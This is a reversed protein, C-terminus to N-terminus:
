GITIRNCDVFVCNYNIFCNNGIYINVGYDCSFPTEIWVGTGLFGLLQRLTEQKDVANDSSSNTFRTLLRKACHYLALLEPDRSQYPEGSVMKEKETKRFSQRQDELDFAAM